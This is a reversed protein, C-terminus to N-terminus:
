FEIAEYSWIIQTSFFVLCHTNGKSRKEIENKNNDHRPTAHKQKAKSIQLKENVM